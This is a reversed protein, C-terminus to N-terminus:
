AKTGPQRYKAWLACNHSLHHMISYSAGIACHSNVSTTVSLLMMHINYTLV